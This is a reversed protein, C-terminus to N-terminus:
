NTLRMKALKVRKKTLYTLPQTLGSFKEIFKRYYNAMAVFRKVEAKEQPRPFNLMVKIKNPDPKLGESTCLHGLFAVETKFFNCKETNLKLNRKRCVEFVKRLNQINQIESFGVVILDDM